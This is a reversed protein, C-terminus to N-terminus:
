IKQLIGAVIRNAQRAAKQEFEEYSMDADDDAMDSITRLILFPVGAAHCAHGVAAGEMECCDGGLARIREREAASGVFQDGSLVRGTCARVDAMAACVEQATRILGDDCAFTSAFPFYRELVDAPSFDHYATERGIVVDLTRLGDRLGGAIGMNIVAQPAFRDILRQVCLAANVKGAGSCALLVEKEPTRARYLHYFGEAKEEGAGLAATLGELEVPLASLIAIRKM